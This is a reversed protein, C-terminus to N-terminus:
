KISTSQKLKDTHSYRLCRVHYIYEQWCMWLLLNWLFSISFSFTAKGVLQLINILISIERSWYYYMHRRIRGLRFCLMESQNIGYEIVYLTCCIDTTLKLSYLMHSSVGRLYLIRFFDELGLSIIFFLIHPSQLLM